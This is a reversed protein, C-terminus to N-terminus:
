RVRQKIGWGVAFPDVYLGGFGSVMTLSGPASNGRKNLSCVPM